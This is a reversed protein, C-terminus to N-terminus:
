LKKGAAVEAHPTGAPPAKGLPYRLSVLFGILIHEVNILLFLASLAIAKDAAFGYNALVAILIADRIGVGSFSIPLAQLIAILAMSSVLALIPIGLDLAEFLLWLRVMTSTASGITALLLNGMLAPRMNLGAFQGRWREIAPRLRRPALRLMSTILWDRPRRAMFAPIMLGILAAFGITALQVPAQIAPPFIHLFAVLGLLSLLAMILFDFLRDLLISFLAPALPQGRERLYWAKIFDGSQGPTAGGLFLGIMYLIMSFGLPPARMALERMLMNWRWAKVAVFVPYLALSLLVPAWRLDRLNDLIKNVDTTLLFYVLIAPGILRLLWRTYNNVFV